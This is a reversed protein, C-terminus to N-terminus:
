FPQFVPKFGMNGPIVGLIVDSLLDRSSAEAVAATGLCVTFASVLFVTM